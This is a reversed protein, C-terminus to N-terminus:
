RPNPQAGKMYTSSSYFAETRPEEQHKKDRQSPDKYGPISGVKLINNGARYTTGHHLYKVDTWQLSEWGM